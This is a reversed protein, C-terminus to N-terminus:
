RPLGQTLKELFHKAYDEAAEKSRDSPFTVIVGVNVKAGTAAVDDEPRLELRALVTGKGLIDEVQKLTDRLRLNEEALWSITDLASDHSDSYKAVQGTSM